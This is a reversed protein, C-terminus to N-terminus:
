TLILFTAQGSSVKSASPLGPCAVCEPHSRPAAFPMLIFKGPAELAPRHRTDGQKLGPRRM